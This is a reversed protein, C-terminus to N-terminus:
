KQFHLFCFFKEFYGSNKKTIELFFSIIKLNKSIEDMIPNPDM